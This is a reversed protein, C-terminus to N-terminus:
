STYGIMLNVEESIAAATGTEATHQIAHAAEEHAAVETHQKIRCGGLEVVRQM